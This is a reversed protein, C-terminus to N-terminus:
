HGVNPLGGFIFTVFFLITPLRAIGTFLWGYLSFPFILYLLNWTLICIFSACSIINLKWKLTKLLLLLFPIALLKPSIFLPYVFNFLLTKVTEVYGNTLLVPIEWLTTAPLVSFGALYFTQNNSIHNKALLYIVWFMISWCLLSQHSWLNLSLILALSVFNLILWLKMNLFFHPIKRDFLYLVFLFHPLLIMTFDILYHGLNYGTLLHWSLFHPFLVFLGSLFATLFVYRFCFDIM